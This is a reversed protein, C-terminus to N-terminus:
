VISGWVIHASVELDLVGTRGVARAVDARFAEAEEPAMLRRALSSTSHFYEVYDGMQQRFPVAATEHRGSIAFLGRRQLEDTLSFEPDYGPNRTYRVIVERLEEHWPTRHHRREVVALVAGPRLVRRLQEFTPEPDMWHLSEGATALAYPGEVTMTEAAQVHWRLNARDGGPAARGAAVMAPSIEVADVLDVRAAMPRALSGEGAGLDLLTRPTGVLLSELVDFVEEPYPPRHAYAAAVDSDQFSSALDRRDM